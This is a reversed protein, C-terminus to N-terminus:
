NTGGSATKIGFTKVVHECLETVCRSKTVIGLDIMERTDVVQAHLTPVPQQRVSNTATKFFVATIVGVFRIDTTKLIGNKYNVGSSYTFVPSGSSGGFVSADILFQPKGEFDIEPPSASVGKRIIPLGNKSDWLGNPYGIFALEEIGSMNELDVDTATISKTIPILCLVTDRKYIAKLKEFEPALILAALDVSPDPHTIWRSEFNDIHIQVSEKLLPGDKDGEPFSLTGNIAGSIVHRNTILLPIHSEANIDYTYYFGTGSSQQNIADVTDIRVACFYLQKSAETLKM